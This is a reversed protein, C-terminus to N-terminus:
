CICLSLFFCGKQSDSYGVSENVYRVANWDDFCAVYRIDLKSSQDECM